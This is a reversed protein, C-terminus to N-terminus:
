KAKRHSLQNKTLKLTHIVENDINIVRYTVEPDTKTTDFELLGFSCKENYSFLPGKVPGHILEVKHKHQKALEQFAPIKYLPEMLNRPGALFRGFPLGHKLAAKASAM